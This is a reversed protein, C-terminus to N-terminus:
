HKKGHLVYWTFYGLIVIGVMLMFGLVYTTRVIPALSSIVNIDGNLVGAHDMQFMLIVATITTSALLFGKNEFYWGVWLLILPIILKHIAPLALLGYYPFWDLFRVIIVVMFLVTAVVATIFYLLSREKM